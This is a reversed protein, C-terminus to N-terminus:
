FFARWIRGNFHSHCASGLLVDLKPALWMTIVSGIASIFMALVLCAMRASIQSKIDPVYASFGGFAAGLMVFAPLVPRSLIVDNLIKM